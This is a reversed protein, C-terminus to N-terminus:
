SQKEKLGPMRRITYVFHIIEPRHVTSGLGAEVSSNAVIRQVRELSWMVAAPQKADRLFDFREASYSLAIWAGGPQTVAALYIAVAAEPSFLRSCLERSVPIEQGEDSPFPGLRIDAGCALADTCSKEVIINFMRRNGCQEDCARKFSIWDLIDVVAWRMSDENRDDGFEEREHRRGIEIAAAAFDVNLIVAGSIYRSDHHHM